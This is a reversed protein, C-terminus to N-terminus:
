ITKLGNNGVRHSKNGCIKTNREERENCLRAKHSLSPRQRGAEDEQTSPDYTHEEGKGGAQGGTPNHTQADTNDNCFGAEWAYSECYKIIENAIAKESVM